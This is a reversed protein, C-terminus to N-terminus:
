GDEGGSLEWVVEIPEGEPPIATIRWRGQAENDALVRQTVEVAERVQADEAGEGFYSLKVRGGDSPRKYDDNSRKPEFGIDTWVQPRGLDETAFEIEDDVRWLWEAFELEREAPIILMPLIIAGAIIVLGTVPLMLRSVWGEQRTRALELAVEWRVAGTDTREEAEPTAMGLGAFQWFAFRQAVMLVGLAAVAGAILWIAVESGTDLLALGVAAPLACVAFIIVPLWTAGWWMEEQWPIGPATLMVNRAARRMWGLVAASVLAVALAAVMYESM